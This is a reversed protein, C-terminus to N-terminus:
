EYLKRNAIKKDLLENTIGSRERAKQWYEVATEVEGLQYLIDGFHELHTANAKGSDIVREMIKRAERYKKLKYLVWAHTDLFSPNDPHNRILQSSLKEARDLNSGRLALYYSYNNLAIEHNPNLALAEEFAQDSKQYDAASNYAEGLLVLFDVRLASNGATLKKGTELMQIAQKSAKRRLSALGSFYYLLAQNPYYELAQQTLRNVADYNGAQLQLYILNHWVEFNVKGQQTAQEYFSIAQATHGLTQHLDGGIILIDVEDPYSKILKDFLLLAFTELKEDKRSSSRLRNLEENYTNLVILKSNLEVEPNDFLSLLLTRAKDEQNTDRYLGALLLAAQPAHLNHEIFSELLAIAQNKQNYRSLLEAYGVTYREDDPFAKVLKDAEALAEKIRGSELLLQQKPISSNEQVGFLKEARNLAKIAEDTKNGYRYVTALEYLYEETGPINQIMTEYMRAAQDYRTLNLYIGAALLYFYKNQQEYRLAAEISQAARQLDGPRNSRSFVEAMRYHVTANEPQIDLVKQYNALAKAYDELMFFKEAETFYFEAERSKISALAQQDPRKRKQAQGALWSIALIATFVLRLAHTHFTYVAM